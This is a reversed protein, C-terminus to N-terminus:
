GQSAFWLDIERKASEESDSAHILNQQNSVSLDGRITGPEAKRGDTAGALKRVVPIAEDGSVVLSVLPGSTMFTKLGEYYERGVHEAYHADSLAADMTRLRLQEIRLGKRELRSLVEGILGRRVADPKILVLTRQEAM